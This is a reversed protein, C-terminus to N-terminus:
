THPPTHKHSHTNQTYITNDIHTHTHTHIHNTPIHIHTISQTNIHTHPHTYTNPHTNAHKYMRIITYKLTHTLKTTRTYIRTHLHTHQHTHTDSLSIPLVSRQLFLQAKSSCLFPIFFQYKPRKAINSCLLSFYISDCWRCQSQPSLFVETPYNIICVFNTTPNGSSSLWMRLDLRPHLKLYRCQSSRSTSM